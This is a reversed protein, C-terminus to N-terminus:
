SSRTFRTNTDGKEMTKETPRRNAMPMTSPTSSFAESICGSQAIALLAIILSAIASLKM